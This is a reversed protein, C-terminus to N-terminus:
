RDCVQGLKRVYSFKVYIGYDLPAPDLQLCCWMQFVSLCFTRAFMWGPSQDALSPDHRGSKYKELWGIYQM